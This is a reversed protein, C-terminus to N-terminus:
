LCLKNMETFGAEYLLAEMTTKGKRSGTKWRYEPHCLREANKMCIYNAIKTAITHIRKKYIPDINEWIIKEIYDVLTPPIDPHTRLWKIAKQNLRLLKWFSKKSKVPTHLSLERFELGVCVFAYRNLIDSESDMTTARINVAVFQVHNTNREQIFKDLLEMDTLIDVRNLDPITKYVCVGSCLWSTHYRHPYGFIISLM